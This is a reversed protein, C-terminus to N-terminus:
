EDLDEETIRMTSSSPLEMKKISVSTVSEQQQELLTRHVEAERALTAQHNLFAILATNWDFDQESFHALFYKHGALDDVVLEEFEEWRQEIVADDPNGRNVFRCGLEFKFQSYSPAMDFDDSELGDFDLIDLDEPSEDLSSYELQDWIYDFNDPDVGVEELRQRIEEESRQGGEGELSDAGFYAVLEDLERQDAM